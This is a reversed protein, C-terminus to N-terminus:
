FLYRVLAVAGAALGVLLIIAWPKSDPNDQMLLLPDDGDSELADRQQQTRARQADSQALVAGLRDRPDRTPLPLKKGTSPDTAM